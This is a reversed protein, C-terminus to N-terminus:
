GEHQYIDWGMYNTLAENIGDAHQSKNVAVHHEFGMQCIHQLLYQLDDMRLVGAGGFTELPDDTFEGAAVYGAISGSFDDTSLRLLTAPGPSIKGSITGYSHSKGVFDVIMGHYGMKPKEFFSAPLNSCHFMVARNPDDGYNNNWDLLASPMGSASQLVHMAVAGPVDVECAAPILSSSLMSMVSCPMVGYFQEISLWCQLALASIENAKIWEELVIALRAMKEISTKPVDKSEVYRTLSDAKVKIRPDNSKIQEARGFVESLDWTEITIGSDQFLKESFRCTNFAAPRAGVSGVRLNKLGRLVRCATAFNELDRLFVPSSPDETHNSTLTFGINYQRFNNCVSLKGCFSDRRYKVSMKSPDDPFAHVLIPVNLGSLKIAEAVAKEDGFNPLTVIIGDIKERNRSFLEGCKKADDYTEVAGGNTQRPTLAVTNYGQRKLLNLFQERGQKALEAPFFARSGVLLGFTVKSQKVM